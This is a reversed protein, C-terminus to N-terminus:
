IKVERKVKGYIRMIVVGNNLDFFITRGMDGGVEEAQVKIFNNKLFTRVAEVNKEGINLTSSKRRFMSAGGIIKAVINKRESGMFFMKNLMYPLAYEAYRFKMNESINEQALSSISPLMIHALAGIKKEKDYLTVGVCSGLGRTELVFPARNVTLDGIGVNINM